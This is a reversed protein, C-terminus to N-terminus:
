ERWLAPDMFVSSMTVAGRVLELAGPILAMAMWADQPDVEYPPMIGYPYAPEFGARPYYGPHGLVLAIAAGGERVADLGARVLAEGVGRGQSEPSVALPALLAARMGGVSAATFLVHGVLTEGPYAGLSWEPLWASEDGRLAVILEYEETSGFAACVVREVAPDELPDVPRITVPDPM